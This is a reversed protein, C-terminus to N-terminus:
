TYPSAYSYAIVYIDGSFHIQPTWLTAPYTSPTVYIGTVIIHARNLPVTTTNSFILRYNRGNVNM